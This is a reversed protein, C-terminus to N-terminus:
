KADKVSLGLNSENRSTNRNDLQANPNGIISENKNTSINKSPPSFYQQFNQSM